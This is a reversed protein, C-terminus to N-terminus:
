AGTREQAAAPLGNRGPYAWPFKELKESRKELWHRHIEISAYSVVLVALMWLDRQRLLEHAIDNLAVQVYAIVLGAMVLRQMKDGTRMSVLSLGVVVAHMLLLGIFGIVSREYLYSVYENHVNKELGSSRMGHPGLGLPHKSYERWGDTVLAVRDEVGGSIGAIGGTVTTSEAEGFLSFFDRGTLYPTGLYALVVLIVFVAGAGVYFLRTRQTGTLLLYLGMAAPIVPIQSSVGTLLCALTVLALAIYQWLRKKSLYPADIPLALVV